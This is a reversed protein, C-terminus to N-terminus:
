AYCGREESWNLLGSAYRRTWELFVVAKDPKDDYNVSEGPACRTSDWFGILYPKFLRLFYFLEQGPVMLTRSVWDFHELIRWDELLPRINVASNPPSSVSRTLLMEYDRDLLRRTRCTKGQKVVAFKRLKDLRFDRPIVSYDQAYEYCKGGIEVAEESFSPINGGVVGGLSERIHLLPYVRGADLDYGYLDYYEKKLTKSVTWAPTVRIHRVDQFPLRVKFASLIRHNAVFIHQTEGDLVIGSPMIERHHRIASGEGLTLFSVAFQFIDHLFLREEDGDLRKEPWPRRTWAGVVPKKQKADVGQM